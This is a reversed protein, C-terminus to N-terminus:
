KGLVRKIGKLFFDIKDSRIARGLAHLTKRRMRLKSQHHAKLDLTAFQAAKNKVETQLDEKSVVQDLFGAEIATRPNYLHSLLVANDFHASKLRQRCIEIATYPMTFGIEVENAVIKYDGEVGIRYDASLLLFSGMAIAHGNCGIVVPTPFALLRKALKFGGILMKFTNMVGSTLIHLDFGACFVDERGTIVVVANAKEAADLAQNLQHLMRPSLLNNKGDDMVITAVTGELTSSVISDKGM